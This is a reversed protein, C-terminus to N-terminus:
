KLREITKTKPIVGMGRSLIYKLVIQAPTKSYKQAAIVFIM